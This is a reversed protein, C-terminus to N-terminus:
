NEVSVKRDLDIPDRPGNQPTAAGYLLELGFDLKPLAGITGLGPVKIEPGTSRGPAPNGLDIVQAAPGQPTAASQGGATTEQFALAAQSLVGLMGGLIMMKASNMTQRGTSGFQRPMRVRPNSSEYISHIVNRAQDCAKLNTEVGTLGSQVNGCRRTTTGGHQLAAVPFRYCFQAWLICGFRGVSSPLVAWKFAM